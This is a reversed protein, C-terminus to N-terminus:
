NDPRKRKGLVLGSDSLVSFTKRPNYNSANFDRAPNNTLQLISGFIDSKYIDYNGLKNSSIFVGSSDTQWDTVYDNKSSSLLMKETNNSFDYLYAESRTSSIYRNFGIKSGDPSWSIGYDDSSTIKKKDSGDPQITLLNYKSTGPNSENSEIEIKNGDPSWKPSIDDATSNTLRTLGSGDINMVYIENNGDRGSHFVIKNGGPSLSAERDRTLPVNTLNKKGTGDINMSFIESKGGIESTYIIKTGDYSWVPLYDHELNGETLNKLGTGDSNIIFIDEQNNVTSMFAIKNKDPNWAPYYSNGSPNYTLRRQNAGNDDMLYLESKGEERDSEFAIPGSLNDRVIIENSNRISSPLKITKDFVYRQIKSQDNNNAGFHGSQGAEEQHVIDTGNKIIQFGWTYGGSINYTKLDFRNDGQNIRDTIDITTDSSYSTKQYNGNLNVYAYSTDDVNYMRLKWTNDTVVTYQKQLPVSEISNRVVFVDFLTKEMISPNSSPIKNADTKLNKTPDGVKIFREPNFEFGIKTNGVAASTIPRKYVAYINNGSSDKEITRFAVELNPGTFNKGTLTIYDYLELNTSQPYGSIELSFFEISPAIINIANKIEFENNKAKVLLDKKGASIGTNSLVKCILLNELREIVAVENFGTSDKIYVKTDSNLSDGAVAIAFTDSDKDFQVNLSPAGPFTKNQDAPFNIGAIGM